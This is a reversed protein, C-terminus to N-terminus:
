SSEPENELNPETCYVSVANLNRTGSPAPLVPMVPMISLPRGGPRRAASYQACHRAAVAVAAAGGHCDAPARLWPQLTQWASKSPGRHRRPVPNPGPACHREAYRILISFSCRSQAEDAGEWWPLV